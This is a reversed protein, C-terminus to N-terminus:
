VFLQLTVGRFLRASDPRRNTKAACRPTWTERLGPQIKIHSIETHAENNLGFLM